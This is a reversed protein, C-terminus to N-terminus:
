RPIPAPQKTNTLQYLHEPRDIDPLTHDGLDTLTVSPPPDSRLLEETALSVLIQDPEAITLMRACLNLAPGYYDGDRRHPEGTHLAMRLRLVGIGDGFVVRRISAQIAAAATAAHHASHFVALIGDGTHKIVTGGEVAVLDGILDDHRILVEPMHLPHRQWLRTSGELDTLLMTVTEATWDAAVRPVTQTSIIGSAEGPDRPSAGRPHTPTAPSDRFPSRTRWRRIWGEVKRIAM